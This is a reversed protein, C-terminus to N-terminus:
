PNVIVYATNCGSVTASRTQTGQGTAVITHNGATIYNFVVTNGATINPYAVGDITIHATYVLNTNQISISGYTKVVSSGTNTLGSSIIGNSNNDYLSNACGALSYWYYTSAPIDIFAVNGSVDTVGAYLYTGKGHLVYNQMDAESGFVYVSAGSVIAANNYVTIELNTADPPANNIAKKCSFLLTSALLLAALSKKFNM